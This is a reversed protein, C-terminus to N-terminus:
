PPKCRHHQCGRHPFGAQVSSRLMQMDPLDQDIKKAPGLTQTFYNPSATRMQRGMADSRYSTQARAQAQFTFEVLQRRL